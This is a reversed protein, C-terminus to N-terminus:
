LPYLEGKEVDVGANTTKQIGSPPWEPIKFYNLNANEQQSVLFSSYKKFHKRAM